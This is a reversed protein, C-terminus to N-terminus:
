AEDEALTIIDTADAHFDDPLQRGPAAPDADIPTPSGFAPIDWNAHIRDFEVEADELDGILQIPFDATLVASWRSLKRDKADVLPVVPRLAGLAFPKSLMGLDQGVLAAVAALLLAYSGPEKAQDPGGHRRPQESPRDNEAVVMLGFTGSVIVEGDQENGETEIRQPRDWGAFVVYAAPCAILESSALYDEWNDPYTALTKWKPFPLVGAAAVAELRALMALEVAAIM